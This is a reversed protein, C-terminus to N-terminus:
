PSLAAEGAPSPETRRWGRAVALVSALALLPVLMALAFGRRIVEGAGYPETVQAFQQALSVFMSNEMTFYLVDNDAPLPASTASTTALRRESALRPLTTAFHAEVPYGTVPVAQAVVLLAGAALAAARVAARRTRLEEWLWWALPAAAVYLPAMYRPGWAWEGHWYKFRGFSLLCALLYAGLARFAQPHRRYLPRACLVVGILPPGYWLVGKGPSITLGAMAQLHERSFWGVLLQDATGVSTVTYAVLPSGFRLWNYWAVVAVGPLCGIACALGRRAVARLGGPGQGVVLVAAPVALVGAGLRTAFAAGLAAGAWTWARPREEGSGAWLLIAIALVEILNDYGHAVSPWLATGFCVLMAGAMAAPPSAGSRRGWAVLAWAALGLVLLPALGEVAEHGSLRLALVPLQLVFAVPPYGTYAHGDRGRMLYHDDAPTHATVVFGKGRVFNYAVQLKVVNDWNRVGPPLSFWASGVVVLCAVAGVLLWRSRDSRSTTPGPMSM